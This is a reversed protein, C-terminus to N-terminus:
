VYKSNIGILFICYCSINAYEFIHTISSLFAIDKEAFYYIPFVSFFYALCWIFIGTAIWFHQKKYLSIEDPARVQSIYYYLALFLYLSTISITDVENFLKGKYLVWITCLLYLISIIYKLKKDKIFYFILYINCILGSYLYINLNGENKFTLIYIESIFVTVFYIWLNENRATKNTFSCAACILLILLYLTNTTEVKLM